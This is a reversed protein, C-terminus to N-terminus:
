SILMSNPFLSLLHLIIISLNYNVFIKYPEHIKSTFTVPFNILNESFDLFYKFLYLFQNLYPFILHYHFVIM